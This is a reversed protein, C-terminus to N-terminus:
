RKLYSNSRAFKDATAGVAIAPVDARLEAIMQHLRAIAQTDAGRADIFDIRVGSALDGGLDVPIRRGDPLPVAAEPGAEGFISPGRAIGGEAFKPLSDFMMNVGMKDSVGGYRSVGGSFLSTLGDALLGGLGGKGGTAQNLFIQLVDVALKRLVDSLKEGSVVASEFASNFSDGMARATDALQESKARAREGAETFDHYRNVLEAIQQGEASSIQVGAQRLENNIEQWRNNYALQENRFRLQDVVGRIRDAEKTDTKGSGNGSQGNQKGANKIMAEAMQVQERDYQLRMERMQAAAKRYEDMNGTVLARQHDGQERINKSIRDQASQAANAYKDFSAQIHQPVPVNFAKRIQIGLDVINRQAMAAGAEITSFLTDVTRIASMIAVDLTDFGGFVSAAAKGLEVLRGGLYLVEAAARGMLGGLREADSGLTIAAASAAEFDKQAAAFFGIKFQDALVTRVREFTPAIDDAREKLQVFNEILAGGVVDATLKGEAALDKLAGRSVGLKNALLDLLVVNAEAVSRFEEGRLAGSGLGQALQISSQAAEMVTSGSIRFTNNLSEVLKGLEAQSLGMDKTAMAMRGYSTTTAAISSQTDRAIRAVDSFAVNFAATSDTVVRLRNAISTFEDSAQMIKRVSLAAIAASIGRRMLLAGAAAGRMSQNIRETSQQVARAAKTMDSQFAAVNTAFNLNLSGITAM